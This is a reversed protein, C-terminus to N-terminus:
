QIEVANELAAKINGEFLQGLKQIVYYPDEKMGKRIWELALGVLAYKYFNAIFHKDEEPVDMGKAQEDVFGYMVNDTISYLYRELQERSISNYIHYVAKRNEGLFKTSQIFGEQWTGYKINEEIVHQAEYQFIEDLMAYIDKFHYYFTNRNVGCEKVIDKVTIKDLATENLLKVFSEILARKTLQSM